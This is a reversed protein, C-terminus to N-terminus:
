KNSQAQSPEALNRQCHQFGSSPKAEGKWMCMTTMGCLRVVMFDSKKPTLNMRSVLHPEIFIKRVWPQASFLAVMRRTRKEDLALDEKGGQPLIRSLMDYQWHGAARCEAARDRDGPRPDECVGYGIWSPLDDTPSGSTSDLYHFSLDLKRGDDHSLHPMLPFGDWFPFGADLYHVTTGPFETALQAAVSETAERLEPVVYHRNLICTWLNAPKLHEGFYPLPVRGFPKALLPVILLSAMLYAGVFVGSQALRRWGNKPVRRKLWPRSLLSLLYVLGGVQTLVTLFAVCSVIGIIRLALRLRPYENLIAM